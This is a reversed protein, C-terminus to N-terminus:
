SDQTCRHLSGYWSAYVALLLARVNLGSLLDNRTAKVNVSTPAASTHRIGPTGTRGPDFVRAYICSPQGPVQSIGRSWRSLTHGPAAVGCHELGRLRRRAQHSVRLCVCPITDGVSPFSPLHFPGHS